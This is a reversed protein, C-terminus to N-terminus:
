YEVVPIKELLWRSILIIPVVVCTAILGTAAVTNYTGAGGFRVSDFIWYSLTMTGYKGETFLLLPGSATLIGTLNLILMTILTSSIMPLVLQVLERAPSCGDLKAAELVERPVRAFTGGLLLLNAGWSGWFSYLMMAQNAYNEDKFFHPIDGASMDFVEQLLVGLFGNPLVMEKVMSAVAVGSILGPVYLLIRFLSYGPMKKFFFYNLVLTFPFIVANTLLFWKISNKVALILESTGDAWTSFFIEFNLMSWEGTPLQFAMLISQINVYFWSVCWHIIPITLMSVIFIRDIMKQRAFGTKNNVVPKALHEEHTVNKEEM